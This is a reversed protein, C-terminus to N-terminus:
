RVEVIDQARLWGPSGRKYGAQARRAYDRAEERKGTGIAYEATALLAGAEDGIEARARALHRFGEVASPDRRLGKQLEEAAERANGSELLAHGLEVRLFGTGRKDLAVAQRFPAVAAGAQGSRLLIEGKMEHVYANSPMASALKDILPLARKPSSYLFTVIARGYQKAQEQLESGQLVSQAYRSGGVYAAIKARAMDHRLQLSASDRKAYHPSEEVVARLRAIRENATPHSLMYPDIRGALISTQQALRRFTSLM